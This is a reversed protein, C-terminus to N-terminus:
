GGAPRPNGRGLPVLRRPVHMIFDAVELGPEGTAKKMSGWRLPLEGEQGNARVLPFFARALRDGKESSEFVTTVGSCTMRSLLAALNRLLMTGVGEYVSRIAAGMRTRKSAVAAIRHFNATRFVAGIAEVQAKTPKLEAAHLPVELGGFHRAKMVRWGVARRAWDPVSVTPHVEAAAVEFVEVPSGDRQGV